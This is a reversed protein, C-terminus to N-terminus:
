LTKSFSIFHLCGIALKESHFSPENTQWQSAIEGVDGVWFDQCEVNARNKLTQIDFSTDFNKINLGFFKATGDYLAEWTKPLPPNRNRPIRTKAIERAYPIAIRSIKFEQALKITLLFLIRQWGRFIQRLPNANCSSLDSQLNLIFLWRKNDVLQMSGLAWGIGNPVHYFNYPFKRIDRRVSPTYYLCDDTLLAARFNIHSRLRAYIPYNTSFRFSFGRCNLRLFILRWFNSQNIVQAFENMNITSYAQGGFENIIDIIANAPDKKIYTQSSLFESLTIKRFIGNEGLQNMLIPLAELAGGYHIYNVGSSISTM